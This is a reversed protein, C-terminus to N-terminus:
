NKDIDQQIHGSRILFFVFTKSIKMASLLLFYFLNQSLDIKTYWVNKFWNKLVFDERLNTNERKSNVFSIKYDFLQHSINTNFSEQICFIDSNLINDM